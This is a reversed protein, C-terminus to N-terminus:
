DSHVTRKPRKARGLPSFSFACLVHMVPYFCGRLEFEIEDSVLRLTSSWVQQSTANFDEVINHLTYSKHVGILPGFCARCSPCSFPQSLPRHRLMGDLCPMCLSHGCPLQHPDEFIDQCVPCTLLEKLQSKQSLWTLKHDM